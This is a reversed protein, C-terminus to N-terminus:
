RTEEAALVAALVPWGLDRPRYPTPAGNVLRFPQPATQPRVLERLEARVAKLNSARRDILLAMTREGMSIDEARAAIRAVDALAEDVQARTLHRRVLDGALGAVDVAGLAEHAARRAEGALLGRAIRLRLLAEDTDSGGLADMTPDDLALAARRLADEPGPGATRLAARAALLDYPHARLHPELAPAVQEAKMTWFARAATWTPPTVPAAAAAAARAAPAAPSQPAAPKTAAAPRVAPAARRWSDFAHVEDAGSWLARRRGDVLVTRAGADDHLVRLIAARRQVQEYDFRAPWRRLWRPAEEPALRALVEILPALSEAAWDGRIWAQEVETLLAPRQDVPTLELALRWAEISVPGAARRSQLLARFREEVPGARHVDRFPALWAELQATMADDPASPSATTEATSEGEGEGEAEEQETAAATTVGGFTLPADSNLSRILGDVLALARDDEGRALLLRVTLRQVVDDKPSRATLAEFAAMDPL